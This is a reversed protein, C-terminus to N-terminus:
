NTTFKVVITYVKALFLHCVRWDFCFVKKAGLVAETDVITEQLYKLIFVERNEPHEFAKQFLPISSPINFKAM